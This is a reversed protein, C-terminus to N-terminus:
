NQLLIPASRSLRLQAFANARETRLVVGLVDARRCASFQRSEMRHSDAAVPGESVTATRFRPRTLERNAPLITARWNHREHLPTMVFLRNQVHNSRTAFLLSPSQGLGRGM